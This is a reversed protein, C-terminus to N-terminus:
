EIDNRIIVRAWQHQLDNAYGQFVSYESPELKEISHTSGDTDFVTLEADPHFLDVNPSLHLTISKDFVSFALLFTEDHLIKNSDSRKQRNHSSLFTLVPNEITEIRSLRSPETSM